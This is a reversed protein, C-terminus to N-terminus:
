FEIRTAVFHRNQINHTAYRYVGNAESDAEKDTPILQGSIM